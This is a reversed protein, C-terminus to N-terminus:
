KLRRGFLSRTESRERSSFNVDVTRSSLSTGRTAYHTGFEPGGKFGEIRYLAAINLLGEILDGHNGLSALRESLQVDLRQIEELRFKKMVISGLKHVALASFSCLKGLLQRTEADIESGESVERIIM